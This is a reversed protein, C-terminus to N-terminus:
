VPFFYGFLPFRGLDPTRLAPGAASSGGGNRAAWDIWAQSIPVRFHSSSPRLTRWRLTLKWWPWPALPLCAALSSSHLIGLWRQEGENRSRLHVSVASM